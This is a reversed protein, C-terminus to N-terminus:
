TLRLDGEGTNPKVQEVFVVLDFSLLQHEERSGVLKIALTTGNRLNRRTLPSQALGNDRRATDLREGSIPTSHFNLRSDRAPVQLARPMYAAATFNL